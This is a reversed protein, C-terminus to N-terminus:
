TTTTTFIDKWIRESKRMRRYWAIECVKESTDRCESRKESM